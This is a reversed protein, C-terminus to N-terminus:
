TQYCIFSPGVLFYLITECNFFIIFVSDLCWVVVRQGANQFYYKGKKKKKTILLQM